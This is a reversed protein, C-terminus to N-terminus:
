TRVKGEKWHAKNLSCAGAPAVFGWEDPRAFTCGGSSGAAPASHLGRGARYHARHALAGLLNVGCALAAFALLEGKVGETLRRSERFAQAPELGRDVVLMPAFGYRLAWWVGPVILLVFGLAILLGLLLSTLLYTAFGQLLQSVRRLDIPQGDHLKLLVRLFAMGVAAQAVQVVLSALLTGRGETLGRSVMALVANVLGLALLPKANALTRQWGFELAERRSFVAVHGDM